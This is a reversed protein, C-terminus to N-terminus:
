LMQSKPTSQWQGASMQRLGEASGIDLYRQRRFFISQTRIGERVGAQIVHGVTLEEPLQTGPLQASTRPVSLYDHLFETFAATWVAFMWGLKLKKECPKPIVERVRGDRDIAVMDSFRAQHIRYLGLVLDARTESLRHLAQRFADAPTLLIDPFGLAVRKGSVFPYAQDLTYPPGYPLAAILYGLHMGISSGDGYYDPIDWKGKRLIFFAKGVGGLRFQELLYHSVVKPRLLGDANEHLGVPLIEKSCPLPAIRSAYGGCPILGIVESTPM